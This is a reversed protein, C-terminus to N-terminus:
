KKLRRRSGYGIFALAGLGAIAMTSPEPVPVATTNFTLTVNDGVGLTIALVQTMSFTSANTFALLNSNGFGAPAGGTWTYTTAPPTALPTGTVTTGATTPIATANISSSATTTDAAGHAGTTGSVTFNALLAGTLTFGAGTLTIRLTDTTTGTNNVAFSINSLNSFGPFTTTGGGPDNTTAVLSYRFHDVTQIGTTLSNTAPSGTSNTGGTGVDTALYTLAISASASPTALSLVALIALATLARKAGGRIWSSFDCSMAHLEQFTVFDQSDRNVKSTFIRDCQWKEDADEKRPSRRHEGRNTRSNPAIPV